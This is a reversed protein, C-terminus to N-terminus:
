TNDLWLRSFYIKKELNAL